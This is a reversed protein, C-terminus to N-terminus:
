KELKLVHVSNRRLSKPFMNKMSKQVKMSEYERLLSPKNTKRKEGEYIRKNTQCLLFQRERSAFQYPM